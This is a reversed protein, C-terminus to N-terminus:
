LNYDEGKVLTMDLAFYTLGSSLHSSMVKQKERYHDCILM